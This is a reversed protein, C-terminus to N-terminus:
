GVLVQADSGALWAAWHYVLLWLIASATYV